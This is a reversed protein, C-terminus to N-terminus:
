RLNPVLLSTVTLIQGDKLRIYSHNYGEWPAVFSRNAAQNFSMYQKIYAIDDLSFTTSKGKYSYIIKREYYFYQFIAGSNVVYYNIHIVFAPLTLVLFMVGGMWRVSNVDIHKIMSLVYPSIFGMLAFWLIGDGSKVHSKFDVKYVEM